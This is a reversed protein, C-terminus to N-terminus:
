SNRGAGGSAPFGTSSWSRRPVSPSDCKFHWSSCECDTEAQFCPSTRARVGLPWLPIRPARLDDRRGAEPGGDGLTVRVRFGPGAGRSRTFRGSGAAPPTARLLGAAVLQKLRRALVDTAIGEQSGPILESFYRRHGFMIDRARPDGLAASCRSPPTSRVGHPPATDM